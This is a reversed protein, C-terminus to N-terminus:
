VSTLELKNIETVEKLSLGGLKNIFLDCDKVNNQPNQFFWEIFNIAREFTDFTAGAYGGKGMRDKEFSFSVTKDENQWLEYYTRENAKKDKDIKSWNPEHVGTKILKYRQILFLPEFHPYKLGVECYQNGEIFRTALDICYQLIYGDYMQCFNWVDTLYVSVQTKPSHQVGYMAALATKKDMGAMLMIEISVEKAGIIKERKGILLESINNEKLIEKVSQKFEKQKM